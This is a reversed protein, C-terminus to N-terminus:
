NLLMNIKDAKKRVVKRSDKSLRVVVSKIDRIDYGKKHALILADLSQSLMIWDESISLNRKIEEILKERQEVNLQVFLEKFIQALTWRFTPNCLKVADKIFTDVMNVIVDSNERWLRKMINSVRMSVIPDEKYYLNYVKQITIKSDQIWDIVELLRGLSNPNGELLVDFLKNEEIDFVVKKYPIM